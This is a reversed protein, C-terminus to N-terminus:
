QNWIKSVMSKSQHLGTAKLVRAPLRPSFRPLYPSSLAAVLGPPPLGLRLGLSGWGSRTEALPPRTRCRHVMPVVRLM